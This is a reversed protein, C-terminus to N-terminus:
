VGEDRKREADNGDGDMGGNWLPCDFVLVAARLYVGGHGIRHMRRRGVVPVLATHVRQRGTWLRCVRSVVNAQFRRFRGGLRGLRHKPLAYGVGDYLGLANAAMYPAADRPVRPQTEHGCGGDTVDRGVILLEDAKEVRFLIARLGNEVLDNTQAAVAAAHLHRGICGQIAM